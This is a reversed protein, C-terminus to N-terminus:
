AGERYPAFGSRVEQGVEGLVEWFFEGGNRLFAGECVGICPSFPSSTSPNPAYRSRRNKM